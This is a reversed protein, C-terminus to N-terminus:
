QKPIPGAADAPMHPAGGVSSKKRGAQGVPQGLPQAAQHNTALGRAVRRLEQKPNILTGDANVESM